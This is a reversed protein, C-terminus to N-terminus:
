PIVLIGAAPLRAPLSQAAGAAAQGGLNV